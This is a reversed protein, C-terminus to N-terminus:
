KIGSNSMTNIVKSQMFCFVIITPMTTLLAAAAFAGARAVQGPGGQLLQLALPLTKLAQKQIYLMPGVFDNWSAVFSFVIATSWAPRTMPIMMKYFLGWYSCGDIKAAELLADPVVNFNQVLLFLFFSGAVKPLILSWWTNMWGLEQVIIYNTLQTVPASFMLTAIIVTFIQDKLPLKLKTMSFAGMTCVIWTGAVTAISITVSNFIYRLFPVDNGSLAIFLEKFNNLTPNEVFFRPPYLFLESLPKFATSVLYVLPLATFTVVAGLAIYLLVMAPRIRIRKKFKRKTIEAM